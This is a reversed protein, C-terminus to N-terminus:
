GGGTEEWREERGRQGAGFGSALGRRRGECDADDARALAHRFCSLAFSLSEETTPVLLLKSQPKTGTRGRAQMSVGGSEEVEELWM